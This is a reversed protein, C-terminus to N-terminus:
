RQIPRQAFRVVRYGYTSKKVVPIPRCRFTCKTSREFQIRLIHHSAQGVRLVQCDNATRVIRDHFRSSNNCDIRKRRSGRPETSRENKRPFVSLRDDSCVLGKFQIRAKKWRIQGKAKSVLACSVESLGDLM